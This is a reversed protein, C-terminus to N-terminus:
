ITFDLICTQMTQKITMIVCIQLMSVNNSMIDDKQWQGLVKYIKEDYQCYIALNHVDKFVITNLWMYIIRETGWVEVIIWNDVYKFHEYFHWRQLSTSLMESISLEDRADDPLRSAFYEKWMMQQKPWLLRVTILFLPSCHITAHFTAIFLFVWWAVSLQICGSTECSLLRASSREGCCISYKPDCLHPSYM